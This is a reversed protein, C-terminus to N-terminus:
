NYNILHIQCVIGNAPNNRKTNKPTADHTECSLSNILIVNPNTTKAM